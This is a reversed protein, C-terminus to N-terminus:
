AGFIERTKAAIAEGLKRHNAADLHVADKESAECCLAADLFHCGSLQAVTEYVVSLARDKELCGAGFEGALWVEAINDRLRAPSVILIEPPAQAPGFDGARIAEVLLAMGRGILYPTACLHEKTDNTGLMLIVLDAPMNTLMAVELYSLGKLRADLPDDVVTTRGNLGEEEILWGEGLLGRLVGPWRVSPGHRLIKNFIPAADGPVAGWTNSDGYCVITKM